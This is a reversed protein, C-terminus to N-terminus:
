GVKAMMSKAIKANLIRPSLRVAFAMLSNQVGTVKVRRGAFLAKLGQRAVNQATMASQFLNSSKLDARDAFGTLTAGPCLATVTVGTGVLEEALAESLSLVFAKTAGYVAMTPIPSFAATSAVNLIRGSHRGVMSPVFAKTLLTLATVNLGIMAALVGADATVVPDSGGFGANNVLVAVERQGVWAVLNEVGSPSGLDLALISASAGAERVRTAVAELRGPDRATLLLDHGQEALLIALEAGIGSSAGTVLALPRQNM